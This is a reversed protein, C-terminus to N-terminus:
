KNAGAGALYAFVATVVNTLVGIGLEKEGSVLLYIGLAAFISAACVGVVLMKNWRQNSEKLQLVAFDYQRQNDESTAKIQSLATQQKSAEIKAIVDGVKELAESSVDDISPEIAVGNDGM